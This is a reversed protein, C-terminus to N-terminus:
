VGGGAQRDSSPPQNAAQRHRVHYALAGPHHPARQLPTASCGAALRHGASRLNRRSVRGAAPTGDSHRLDTWTGSQCLGWPRHAGAQGRGGASQSGQEGPGSKRVAGSRAAAGGRRQPGRDFAAAAAERQGSQRSTAQPQDHSLCNGCSPNPSSPISMTDREATAPPPQHSRCRCHHALPSTGTMPKSLVSKTM